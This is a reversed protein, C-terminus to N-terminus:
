YNAPYVQGSFVSASMVGFGVINADGYRVVSLSIYKTYDSINGFPGIMIM